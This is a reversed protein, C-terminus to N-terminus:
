RGPSEIQRRERIVAQIPRPSFGFPFGAPARAAQSNGAVFPPRTARAQCPHPAHGSWTLSLHGHPPLTPVVSMQSPEEM